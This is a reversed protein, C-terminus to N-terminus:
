NKKITEDSKSKKKEEREKKLQGVKWMFLRGKTKAKKSSTVSIRAEELLSRDETKALKIYLTRHKKDGLEEALRNGYAQFEHSCRYDRSFKKGQMIDSIKKM